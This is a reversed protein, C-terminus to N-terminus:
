VARGLLKEAIAGAFEEAKATLDKRAGEIQSGLDALLEQKKAAAEQAGEELMAKEEARAEQKLREREAQGSKRAEALKANCNELLQEANKEFKEIDARADSLRSEREMLLARIPKYLISNLIFMLVLVSIIEAVISADITIM